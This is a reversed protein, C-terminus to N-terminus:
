RLTSNKARAVCNAYAPKLPAIYEVFKPKASVLKAKGAFALTDPIITFEGGGEYQRGDTWIGISKPCNGSRREVQVVTNPLTTPLQPKDTQAQLATTTTVLLASLLGLIQSDVLTKM